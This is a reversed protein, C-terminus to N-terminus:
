RYKVLERMQVNWQENTKDDIPFHVIVDRDYKSEGGPKGDKGYSILEGYGAGENYNVLIVMNEYADTKDQEL